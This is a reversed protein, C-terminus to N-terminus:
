YVWIIFSKESFNFVAKIYYFSISLHGAFNSKNKNIFVIYITNKQLTKVRKINDEIKKATFM